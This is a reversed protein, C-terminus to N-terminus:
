EFSEEDSVRANRVINTKVGGPHVVTLGVPAGSVLLEERLTEALGRVAFKNATYISQVPVAMLGFLSSMVVVHGDGSAELHPLFTQTCHVTGGFIIGVMWQM